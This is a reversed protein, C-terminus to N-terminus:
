ETKREAPGAPQPASDEGIRVAEGGVERQLEAIELRLQECEVMKRKLFRLTIQAKQELGRPTLLYAYAAKNNSNKFNNVKVWGRDILARICYNVKGLSVGLQSALERQTM